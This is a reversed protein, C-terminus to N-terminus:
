PKAHQERIFNEFTRQLEASDESYSFCKWHTDGRYIDHRGVLTNLRSSLLKSSLGTIQMLEKHTRPSEKLLVLIDDASLM